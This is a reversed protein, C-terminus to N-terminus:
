GDSPIVEWQLMQAMQTMYKRADDEREFAIAVAIGPLVNQGETKTSYLCVHWEGKETHEEFTIAGLCM